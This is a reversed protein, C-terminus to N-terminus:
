DGNEQLWKLLDRRLYAPCDPFVRGNINQIRLSTELLDRYSDTYEVMSEDSTNFLLASYDAFMLLWTSKAIQLKYISLNDCTSKVYSPLLNLRKDKATLILGNAITM